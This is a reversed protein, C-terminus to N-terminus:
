RAKAADVLEPPIPRTYQAPTRIIRHLFIHGLASSVLFFFIIVVTTTDFMISAIEVATQSFNFM